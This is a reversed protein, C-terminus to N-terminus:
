PMTWLYLPRERGDSRMRVTRSPRWDGMDHWHSVVRAGRPLEREFKPRLKLNFDASLFLMVATVGRLDTEFLDQNLFTIREAVGAAAANRRAEAIRRPDIDVCLGRAGYRRAAEIVIRGDGCGLDAVLDERGVAALELMAQAVDIPTPEYQVEPGRLVGSAACGALMLALVTFVRILM